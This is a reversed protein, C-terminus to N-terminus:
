YYYVPAPVLDKSRVYGVKSGFSIKYWEGGKASSIFYCSTGNKLSGLNHGRSSSTRDYMYIYKRTTCAVIYERGYWPENNGYGYDPICYSSNNTQKGNGNHNTKKATKGSHLESYTMKSGSDSLNASKIFVFKGTSIRVYCLESSYRCILIVTEGYGCSGTSAQGPKTYYKCSSGNVYYANCKLFSSKSEYRGSNTVCSIRVYAQKGSKELVIYYSGSTGICLLEEGKWLHRVTESGTSPGSYLYSNEKVKYVPCSDSTNKRSDNNNKYPSPDPYVTKVPAPTVTKGNKLEKYTMKTGTSKLCSSSVFVFRNNKSIVCYLSSSHKFALLVTEGDSLYGDTGGASKKSFACSGGTVVYVPCSYFSDKSEDRGAYTVYSKNIFGDHGSKDLVEYFDGSTGIYLVEEGKFVTRIDLSLSTSEYFLRCNTTLKLVPYTTDAQAPAPLLLLFTALAFFLSTLKKLLSHKM